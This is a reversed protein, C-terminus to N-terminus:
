DSLARKMNEMRGDDYIAHRTFYVFTHVHTPARACDVDRHGVAWSGVVFVFGCCLWRFDGNYCMVSEYYFFFFVTSGCYIFDSNNMLINSCQHMSHTQTRHPWNEHM